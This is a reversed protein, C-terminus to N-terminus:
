TGGGGLSELISLHPSTDEGNRYAFDIGAARAVEEFLDPGQLDPDAEQEAPAVAPGDPPRRDCGYGALLAAGALLGVGALLGAWRKSM